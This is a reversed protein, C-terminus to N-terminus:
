DACLHSNDGSPSRPRGEQTEKSKKTVEKALDHRMELVGERRKKEENLKQLVREDDASIESKTFEQLSPVIVRAASSRIFFASLLLQICPFSSQSHPRLLPGSSVINQTCIELCSALAAVRVLEVDYM